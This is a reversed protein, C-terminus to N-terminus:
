FNSFTVNSASWLKPTLNHPIILKLFHSSWSLKGSSLTSTSPFLQFPGVIKKTFNCCSWTTYKEILYDQAEGRSSLQSLICDVTSFWFKYDLWWGLILTESCTFRPLIPTHFSGARQTSGLHKSNYINGLPQDCKGAKPILESTIITDRLYAPLPAAWFSARINSKSNFQGHIKTQPTFRLTFSHKEDQAHMQGAADTNM